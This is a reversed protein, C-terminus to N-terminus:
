QCAEADFAKLAPAQAPCTYREIIRAVRGLKALADLWVHAFLARCRDYRVTTAPAYIIRANAQPAHEVGTKLGAIVLGLHFLDHSMPLVAHSTGQPREQLQLQVEVFVETFRADRAVPMTAPVARRDAPLDTIAAKAPYIRRSRAYFLPALYCEKVFVAQTPLFRPM